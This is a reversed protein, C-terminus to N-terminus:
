PKGWIVFALLGIFLLLILLAAGVLAWALAKMGRRGMPDSDRVEM